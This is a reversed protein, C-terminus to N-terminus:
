TIKTNTHHASQQWSPLVSAGSHRTPKLAAAKEARRRKMSHGGERVLLQSKRGRGEASCSALQRVASCEHAAAGDM